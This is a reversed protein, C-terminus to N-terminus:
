DRRRLTRLYAKREDSIRYSEVAKQIARNHTATDLRNMEIFPLAADYQKTLATAFYWATMMSVYYEGAPVAAVLEPYEPSFSDDLYFNMLMEIGFRATFVRDSALWRRIETLLEPLHRAFVKPRMSDCTAWNNVYPLFADVARVTEGYDKIREVLFAHLNNEEYYDHPLQTLFEAAEASGSLEKALARLLPARVGIVRDPELTPTLRCTFEKYKEDQMSFLRSQIASMQEM